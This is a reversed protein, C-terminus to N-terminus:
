LLSRLPFARPRAWPFAACRRARTQIAPFVRHGRLVRRVQLAADYNPQRVLLPAGTTRHAGAVLLQHAGERM